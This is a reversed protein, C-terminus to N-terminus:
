PRALTGSFSMCDWISIRPKNQFRSAVAQVVPASTLELSKVPKGTSDFFASRTQEPKSDTLAPADSKRVYLATGSSAAVALASQQAEFNRWKRANKMIAEEPL